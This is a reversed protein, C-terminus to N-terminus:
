NLSSLEPPVPSLRFVRAPIDTNPFRRETERMLAVWEQENSRAYANLIRVLTASLDTLVERAHDMGRLENRLEAHMPSDAGLFEPLQTCVTSYEIADLSMRLADMKRETESLERAYLRAALFRVISDEGSHLLLTEYLEMRVPRLMPKVTRVANAAAGERAAELAEGSPSQPAGSRWALFAAVEPNASGGTNLSADEFFNELSGRYLSDAIRYLCLLHAESSRESLVQTCEAILGQMGAWDGMVEYGIARLYLDEFLQADTSTSPAAATRAEAAAVAAQVSQRAALTPTTSFDAVLIRFDSPQANAFSAAAFLVGWIACHRLFRPASTRRNRTSPMKM